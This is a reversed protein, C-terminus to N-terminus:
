GDSRSAHFQPLGDGLRVWGVRSRVHVHDEPPVADPADLTATAIDIEEPLATSAFFLSTGCGGCFSRRGAESSAFRRPQGATIRLTAVPVTFWAVFPAGSSRRCDTCHCVTSHFPTGDTEFRVEGCFCGGQLM